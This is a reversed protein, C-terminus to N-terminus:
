TLARPRFRLVNLKLDQCYPFCHNQNQLTGTRDFMMNIPSAGREWGITVAPLHLSAAGGSSPPVDRPVGEKRGKWGWFFPAFWGKGRGRKQKRFFYYYNCNCRSCININRGVGVAAPTIRSHTSSPPATMTLARMRRSEFRSSRWISNGYSLALTKRRSASYPPVM